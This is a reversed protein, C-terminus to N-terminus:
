LRLAGGQEALLLGGRELLLRPPPAVTFPPSLASLGADDADAARIRYGDGLPPAQFVATAVGGLVPVTLGPAAPSGDPRLLSFALSAIPGLVTASAAIEVGATAIAPLPGLAISRAVAEAAQVVGFRQTASRTLALGAAAADLTVGTAATGDARISMLATADAAQVVLVDGPRLRDAVPAFYGPALVAARSDTTRYHWLSFGNAQTLPTLGPADFPM